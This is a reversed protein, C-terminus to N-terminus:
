RELSDIFAELEAVEFLPKGGFYRPRVPFPKEKNSLYNRLTKPAIGIFKAADAVSVLRPQVTEVKVVKPTKAM